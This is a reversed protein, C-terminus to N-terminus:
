PHTRGASITTTRRYLSSMNGRTVNRTSTRRVTADAIGAEDAKRPKVGSEPADLEAKRMPYTAEKTQPQERLPSISSRYDNSKSPKESRGKGAVREFERMMIPEMFKPNNTIRHAIADMFADFCSWKDFNLAMTSDLMGAAVLHTLFFKM